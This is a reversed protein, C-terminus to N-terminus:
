PPCSSPRSIARSASPASRRVSPTAAAGWRDLKNRRYMGGVKVRSIFPIIEDTRYSLDLKAIRESSEGLAPSYSVGFSPTTLPMQGVTYLPTAPGNPGAVVASQGTCTPATGGGICAPSNLQVFNAPNTEDYGDPVVIDWLGNAQLALDASGYAYSRSTRMDGRSSSAETIGAMADIELREGRYEAGFQGYKTKTDITNEIQDINVSNNTLTMATVNHADDVVVSGPVVNLVNGFTANGGVNNLGDFLYYGAPATASVARQRPYGTASDTFTGNINQGFLTVPNRSRNQDHVKRNAITGKVFVTLDDTLKYDLRADVAYREDTQTNMFNRLLSPTYDNWQNLCSQQELIRQGRQATNGGPNNPFLEFCEAKSQAGASKTILSRPTEMSNAFVVDADPTGLTDPNYQFTKEASQDFDFLRAYGRNNSTTTEYGHGNNQLKSYTGSVIVGLRDNFFKRSAVANFDPTIDKGLSNQSGGARFSFYPKKFDLGTRTKIQVTGGLSGETMDATSGKVVDVSKVLEAPLERLDASRGSGASLALGTTSQVGIGDLEVRTLDPGNGRVAVSEGEGFENRGLAVGPIRSIAENVNRDPFSGIDDAVISDTTTKATKKRNNASQQSARSGVVVIEQETSSADDSSTSSQNNSSQAFAGNCGIVSIGLVTWSATVRLLRRSVARSHM